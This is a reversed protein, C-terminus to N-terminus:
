CPVGPHSPQCGTQCSVSCSVPQSCCRRRLLLLPQARPQSSTSSSPHPGNCTPMAASGVGAGPGLEQQAAALNHQQWLRLGDAALATACLVLLQQRSNSLLQQVAAPHQVEGPAQSRDLHASLATMVLECYELPAALPLVPLTQGHQAALLDHIRQLHGVCGLHYAAVEAVATAVGAAAPTHLV